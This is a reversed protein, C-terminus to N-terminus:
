AVAEAEYLSAFRQFLAAVEVRRALDTPALKGAGRGQVLGMAVAWSMAEKAYGSVEDADVFASLDAQKSVDYGKKAAYRYLLTVLQERTVNDEPGFGGNDYGLVIGNKNGWTIAESYWKGSDVDNFIDEFTTAPEKELRYIITAMMGRTTNTNVGFLKDSVGLMLENKYMFAVAERYWDGDKVDEFPLPLDALPVDPDTVDVEPPTPTPTSPTPTSPTPTSPYYVGGGSPASTTTVTVACSVSVSGATATITATGAGVPTVVGNEDVTAVSTDSSTWTVTRDTANDPEVTASLTVPASVTYGVTMSLAPQDLTVGTVPVTRDYGCVTCTNDAGFTHDATEVHTSDNGCTRSHQTASISTWEGWSHNLVAIVTADQTTETTGEADSFLKGCEDCTWYATNGAETCTAAKAATAILTHAKAPVEDAKFTEGCADCTYTTYGADTCTPETKVASGDQAVHDHEAYKVDDKVVITVFQDNTGDGNWDFAYRYMLQNDGDKFQKMYVPTVMAWYQGDEQVTVADTWDIKTGDDNWWQSIKQYKANAAGEPAEVHIGAWWKNPTRGYDNGDAAYVLTNSSDFTVTVTKGDEDVEVKGGGFATVTGMPIFDQITWKGDAGQVAHKGDVCYETVDSSYTGASVAVSVTKDTGVVSQNGSATHIADKGSAAKVEVNGSITITGNTEKAGMNITEIGTGQASEFTGGTINVVVDSSVGSVSTAYQQTSVALAWGSGVTGNGSPAYEKYEGTAMITGGSINVTGQKVEIGSLTGEIDAGDQINLTGGMPWYIGTGGTIKGGNITATTGQSYQNNGCIAQGGSQVTGGTMTLTAATSANSVTANQLSIGYGTADVVANDAVTITGGQMDVATKGSVTGGTLNVTANKAIIGTKADCKVTGGSINITGIASANNAGAYIGYQSGTVTGGSVNVTASKTGFSIGRRGEVTGSMVNVTGGSTSIAIGTGGTSSSTDANAKITPGNVTLTGTSHQIANKVTGNGIVGSGTLTVNGATVLTYNSSGGTINHGSLDLTIAKNIRQFATLEVDKLLTVTDGSQAATIAAQLTEYQQEGVQAVYDKPIEEIAWVDGKNVAHLGKVCYETVDSSYTGGSVALRSTTPEEIVEWATSTKQMGYKRVAQNETQSQFEGGTVTVDINGYASRSVLSLAAGDLVMGDGQQAAKFPDNRVESDTSILTGGTIEATGGAMQVGVGGSITGENITLTGQQPHYIGASYDPAASYGGTATITGGNITIKTNDNSGNGAIGYLQSNIIVGENVVLESVCGVNTTNDGFIGVGSEAANITTGANLTAKGCYDKVGPGIGVGRISAQITVNELTVAGQQIYVTGRAAKTDSLAGNEVTVYANKHNLMLLANADGGAVSHGNLDLTITVSKSITVRSSDPIDKVLKVTQGDEAANVAAQLTTYGTGSILAVYNEEPPIAEVTWGSGSNVARFGEACYVNVDSSFTGGSITITGIYESGAAGTDVAKQTGTVTGGTVNADCGTSAFIGTVTQDGGITGGSVTGGSVSVSGSKCYVGAKGGTVTGGTVTVSGGETYIGRTGCTITGGEVTLSSNTKVEFTCSLETSKEWVVKGTKGESSDKVTMQAYNKIEFYGESATYGNLDLTITKNKVDFRTMTGGSSNKGEIKTDKLLKVTDGDQAAQFADWLTAYGTEGVQAVYDDAPPNETVGWNGNGDNEMTVGSVNTVQKNFNGGTIMVGQVTEASTDELVGFVPGQGLQEFTGGIIEITAGAANGILPSTTTPTEYTSKFEGGKITMTGYNRITYTDNVKSDYVSYTEFCGAEITCTGRNVLASNLDANLNVSYISGGGVSDKITLTGENTIADMIPDGVSCGNLDLIIIKGAPIDFGYNATDNLMRITAEEGDPVDKIADRPVDYHKGNYEAEHRCNEGGPCETSRSVAANSAEITVANNAEVTEVNEGEPEDSASENGEEQTKECECPDKGCVECVTPKEQDEGEQEDETEEPAEYKPCDAEHTEAACDETKTCVAPGDPQTQPTSPENVGDDSPTVTTTSGSDPEEAFAATGLMGVCMVLVLLLALGRRSTKLFKNM